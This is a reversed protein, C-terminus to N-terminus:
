KPKEPAIVTAAMTMTTTITGTIRIKTPLGGTSACVAAAACASAGDGVCTRAFANRSIAKRETEMAKASTSNACTPKMTWRM